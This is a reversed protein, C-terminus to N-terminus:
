GDAPEEVEVREITSDDIDTWRPLKGHRECWARMTAAMALELDDLQESTATLLGEAADHDYEDREMIDRVVDSARLLEWPMPPTKGRAVRIVGGHDSFAGEEIAEERSGFGGSWITEDASYAWDDEPKRRETM